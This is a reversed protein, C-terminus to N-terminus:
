RGRTTVQPQNAYARANKLWSTEVDSEFFAVENTSVMGTRPHVTVWYNSMDMYNRVVIGDDGAWRDEIEAPNITREWVNNSDKTWYSGAREWKGILFHIPGNPSTANGGCRYSEVSGSPSFMIFVPDQTAPGDPRFDSGREIPSVTGDSATQFDGDNIGSYELDVIIGTPFGIPAALTPKPARLVKFTAPANASYTRFRTSTDIRPGSGNTCKASTLEHYAGQGNFQIKDGTEVMANWFEDEDSGASGYQTNNWKYFTIRGSDDVGVRLGEVSGCYPAPVEVQRIVLCTDNNPYVTDDGDQYNNDTYREFMVGCSRGTESARIRAVNLYTSLTQAANSQKRSELMPKFIPVSMVVVILIISTVVLLEVLTMGPKVASSRRKFITNRM